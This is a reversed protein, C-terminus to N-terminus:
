DPLTLRKAHRRLTTELKEIEQKVRFLRYTRAINEKSRAPLAFSVARGGGLTVKLSADAPALAIFAVIPEAMTDTFTLRRYHKGGDVYSYNMGGDYPITDSSLYTHDSLNDIRLHTSQPDFASAVSAALELRDEKDFYTDLYPIGSPESGKVRTTTEDAFRKDHLTVFDELLRDRVSYLTDLRAVAFASDRRSIEMRVSKQLALAERRYKVADRYTHHLSDLLQASLEYSGSEYAVRSEELLAKASKEERSM